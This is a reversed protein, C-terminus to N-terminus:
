ATAAWWHAPNQEFWGDPQGPAAAEAFPCAGEGVIDGAESALVCRAGQTGVDMGCLIAGHTM